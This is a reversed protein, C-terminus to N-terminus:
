GNLHPDGRRTGVEEWIGNGENGGDLRGREAEPDHNASSAPQAAGSPAHPDGRTSILGGSGGFSLGYAEKEYRFLLASM